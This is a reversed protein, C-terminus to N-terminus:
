DARKVVSSWGPQHDGDDDREPLAKPTATRGRSFADAPILRSSLPSQSVDARSVIGLGCWFARSAGVGKFPNALREALAM